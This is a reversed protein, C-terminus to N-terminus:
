RLYARGDASAAMSAGTTSTAASGRNSFPPKFDGFRETFVAFAQEIPAEVVIQRRVGTTAADTM